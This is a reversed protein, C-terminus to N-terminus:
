QEQLFLRGDAVKNDASRLTFEVQWGDDQDCLSGQVDLPQDVGIVVRFKIHDCSRGLLKKSLSLEALHRVAALQLIAPLVARGPFHGAFGPFDPPFCYSGSFSMGEPTAECNWSQLAHGLDELLSQKTM